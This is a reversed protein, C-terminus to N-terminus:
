DREINDKYECIECFRQEFLDMMGSYCTPCLSVPLIGLDGTVGGEKQINFEGDCISCKM